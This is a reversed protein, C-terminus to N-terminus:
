QITVSVSDSASGSSNSCSISYGITGTATPTITQAGGTAAKGGSWGGSGGSGTCSTANTTTWSIVTSAGLAVLPPNAFIGVQPAPPPPVPPPPTYGAPTGGAAIIDADITNRFDTIIPQLQSQIQASLSTTEISTPLQGSLAAIQNMTDSVITPDQVGAISDQLTTIQDLIGNVRLIESQATARADILAQPLTTVSIQGPYDALAQNLYAQESDVISIITNQASIYSQAEATAVSGGGGFSNNSYGGFASTSNLSDLFSDYTVGDSPDTFPQFSAGFLGVEGLVWQVMQGLLAAVLENIEDAVVLREAGKPLMQNLQSEIVAGPTSIQCNEGNADCQEFSFFGEGWKLLEIREGKANRLEASFAAQAKAYAGYVTSEQDQTVGMWWAWGGAAFSRSDYAADLDVEGNINVAFNQVNRIIDSIRCQPQYGSGDTRNGFYQGTLAFQIDLQFPSCIFGLNTNNLIFDGAIGDAINLIFGRFDRVFSPGGSPFGANVWDTVSRIMEQLLINIAAWAIGDLVFEKLGLSNTAWATVSNIATNAATLGAQLFQGARSACPGDATLCGGGAEVTQTDVSFSYNQFTPSFPALVLVLVIVLGFLYKIISNQLAAIM